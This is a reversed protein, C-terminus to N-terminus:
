QVGHTSPCDTSVKDQKGQESEKKYNCGAEKIKEM